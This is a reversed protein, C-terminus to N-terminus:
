VRTMGPNKEAFGLLMVLIARLQKFADEERSTIQNILMFVSREIFEILGEFMQAKSAFHRYLAAESVQLRAALAATTVRDGDPEQLMTALTQLIQVKREGPKPRTARPPATSIEESMTEQMGSAGGRAAFTYCITSSARHSPRAGGALTAEENSRAGRHRPGARHPHPDRARQLPEGAHRGGARLPGGRHAPERRGPADDSAFAQAPDSGRVADVRDFSGSPGPAERRACRAGGDCLGGAREDAGRTSRAPPRAGRAPPRRPARPAAHRRVPPDRAPLACSRGRSSPGPRAPDRRLAALLSNAACRGRGGAPRA